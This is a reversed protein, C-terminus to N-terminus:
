QVHLRILLYDNHTSATEKAVTINIKHYLHLFVQLNVFICLLPLPMLSNVPTQSLNMHKHLVVHIVRDNRM